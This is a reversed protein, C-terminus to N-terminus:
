FSFDLGAHLQSFTGWGGFSSNWRLHAALDDAFFYRAGVQGGSSLGGGWSDSVDDDSYGFTNYGLVLGGYPQVNDPGADYHINAQAGIFTHSVSYALGSSYSTYAGQAGVGLNFDPFVDEILGREYHVGFTAANALATFGFGLTGGALNDGENLVDAMLPSSAGIAATLLAPMILKKM